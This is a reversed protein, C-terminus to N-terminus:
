QTCRKGASFDRVEASRKGACCQREVEEVMPVLSGNDAANQTVRAAVILHDDSVARDATYGLEWGQSARLFRSEPDTRSVQQRGQDDRAAPFV